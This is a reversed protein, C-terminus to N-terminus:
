HSAALSAFSFNRSANHTCRRLGRCGSIPEFAFKGHKVGRNDDM